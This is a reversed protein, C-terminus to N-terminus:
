LGSWQSCVSSFLVSCSTFFVPLTQRFEVPKALSRLLNSFLKKLGGGHGKLFLERCIFMLFLVLTFITTMGIFRRFVGPWDGAESVWEGLSWEAKVQVFDLQNTQWVLRFWLLEGSSDCLVSRWLSPEAITNHQQPQSFCTCCQESGKHDTIQNIQKNTICLYHTM